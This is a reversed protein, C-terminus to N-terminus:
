GNWRRRDLEHIRGRRSSPGVVGSQRLKSAAADDLLVEVERHLQLLSAPVETTVPGEVMRAVVGAKGAGTAILVIARARLITAVGMSLAERPVQQMDGAFFGANARRSAATLKVRHSWPSLHSAPENFGIHGNAGIGLIQLDIGGAHLIADEFRACEAIPDRAHGDLFHARRRPLNIHRFLYREMYSRYSGPHDPPLGLFEDLNFSSARRYDTAGAAHLAALEEYLPLPTRGTPLGLVLRPQASLHAAVERALTRALSREDPFIALKV